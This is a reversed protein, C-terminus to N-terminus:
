RESQKITQIHRLPYEHRIYDKGEQQLTLGQYVEEVPLGILASIATEKQNEDHLKDIQNFKKLIWQTASFKDLNYQKEIRKIYGLMWLYTSIYSKHQQTSTGDIEDKSFMGYQNMFAMTQIDKESMQMIAQRHKMNKQEMNMLYHPLLESFGESIQGLNYFYSGHVIHGLEHILGVKLPFSLSRGFGQEFWKRDVCLNLPYNKDIDTKVECIGEEIPLGVAQSFEKGNEIVLFTFRLPHKYQLPLSDIQKTLQNIHKIFNAGKNEKDYALTNEKKFAIRILPTAEIQEYRSTNIM